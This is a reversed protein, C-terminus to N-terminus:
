IKIVTVIDQSKYKTILEATSKIRWQGYMEVELPPFFIITCYLATQCDNFKPPLPPLVEYALFGNHLKRRFNTESWMQCVQETCTLHLEQM